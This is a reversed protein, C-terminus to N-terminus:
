ARTIPRTMSYRGTSGGANDAEYGGVIKEYHEFVQQMARSSGGESIQVLDAATNRKSIWIKHEAETTGYSDILGGIFADTFPAVNDPENTNARVEAIEQITAM